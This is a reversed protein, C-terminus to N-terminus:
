KTFLAGEMELRICKRTYLTLNPHPQLSEMFKLLSLSLICSTKEAKFVVATIKKEKAGVM